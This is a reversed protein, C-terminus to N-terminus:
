RKIPLLMVHAAEKSLQDAQSPMKNKFENHQKELHKILIPVADKADPGINDLASLISNYVSSPPPHQELAKLRKRATDTLLRLPPILM